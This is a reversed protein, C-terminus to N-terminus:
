GAILGGAAALIIFGLYSGVFRLSASLSTTADAQTWPADPNAARIARWEEISKISDDAAPAARERVAPCRNVVWGILFAVFAGALMFMIVHGLHAGKGEAFSTSEHAGVAYGAALIILLVGVLIAITERSLSLLEGLSRTVPLRPREAPDAHLAAREARLRENEAELADLRRLVTPQEETM